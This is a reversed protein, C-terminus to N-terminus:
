RTLRAIRRLSASQASATCSASYLAHFCRSLTCVAYKRVHSVRMTMLSHRVIPLRRARALTYNDIMDQFIGQGVPSKECAACTEIRECLAQPLDCAAEVSCGSNFLWTLSPALRLPDSLNFRAEAGIGYVTEGGTHAYVGLRPGLGIVGREQAEASHAALLLAVLAALTTLLQKM